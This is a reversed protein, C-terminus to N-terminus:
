GRNWWGGIKKAIVLLYFFSSWLLVPYVLPMFWSPFDKIVFIVEGPEPPSTIAMAVWSLIIVVGFWGSRYFWPRSKQYHSKM